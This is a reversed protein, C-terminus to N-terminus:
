GVLVRCLAQAQALMSAWMKPMSVGTRAKDHTYVQM